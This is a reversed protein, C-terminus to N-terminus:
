VERQFDPPPNSLFKGPPVEIGGQEFEVHWDAHRSLHTGFGLNWTFEDGSPFWVRNRQLFTDLELFALDKALIERGLNRSAILTRYISWGNPRGSSVRKDM